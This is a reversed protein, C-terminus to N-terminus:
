NPNSGTSDFMLANFNSDLKVTTYEPFIFKEELKCVPQLNSKMLAQIEPPVVADIQGLEKMTCYFSNAFNASILISEHDTM